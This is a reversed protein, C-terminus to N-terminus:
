NDALLHNNNFFIDNMSKSCTLDYFASDEHINLVIYTSRYGIRIDFTILSIGLQPSIKLQTTKQKIIIHHATSVLASLHPLAAAPPVRLAHHRPLQQQRPLHHAPPPGPGARGDGARVAPAAARQRQSGRRWRRRLRRM